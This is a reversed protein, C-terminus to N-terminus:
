SKIGRPLRAVNVEPKDARFDSAPKPSVSSIPHSDACAPYVAIQYKPATLRSTDIPIKSYKLAFTTRILAKIYIIGEPNQYVVYSPKNHIIRYPSIHVHILRNSNGAPQLRTPQIYVLLSVHM